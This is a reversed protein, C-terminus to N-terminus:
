LFARTCSKKIQETLDFKSIKNQFNLKLDLRITRANKISQKVDDKIMITKDGIRYFGDQIIQNIQKWIKARFQDDKTMTRHFDDKKAFNNASKFLPQHKKLHPKLTSELRINESPNDYFM